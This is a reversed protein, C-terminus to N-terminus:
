HILTYYTIQTNRSFISFTIHCIIKKFICIFIIAKNVTIHGKQMQTMINFNGMPMHRLSYFNAM